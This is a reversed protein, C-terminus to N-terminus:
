RGTDKRRERRVKAILADIEKMSTKDLGMAKSRAQIRRMAALARAAAISRLDEEVRGPETSVLIAFPSGRASLVVYREAALQQRVAGMNRQLERSTVYKM